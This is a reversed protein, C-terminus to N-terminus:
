RNPRDTQDGEGKQASANHGPVAFASLHCLSEKFWVGSGTVADGTIELEIGQGIPHESAHLSQGVRRLFARATRKTARRRKEPECAAEIFYADALRKWLSKLTGPSDFLDMGIVQDGVAVVFGKAEEPLTLSRRYAKLRDQDCRYVDAMAETESVTDMQICYHAVCDWVQGQDSEPRGTAARTEHVTRTKQARLEPPACYAAHLCRSTHEWRGAEACSVPLTFTTGAAVIVSLNVVRDQKAGTLIEGEPILLPKKGRNHVLLTPVSGAEDTETVEASQTKIAEELLVYPPRHGNGGVLPFITLNEHRIPNDLSLGRLYGKINDLAEDLHKRKVLKARAPFLALLMQTEPLVDEAELRALRKGLGGVASADDYREAQEFASRVLEHLAEAEDRPSDIAQLIAKGQKRLFVKVALAQTGDCVSEDDEPSPAQARVHADARVKEADMLPALWAAIKRPLHGVQRAQLNEVRIANLDHENHPERVLRVSEGSPAESDCYETGVIRTEVDGLYMEKGPM